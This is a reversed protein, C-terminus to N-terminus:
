PLIGQTPIIQHALTITGSDDYNRALMRKVIGCDTTFEIYGFPSQGTTAAQSFFQLSVQGSSSLIRGAPLFSAGAGGVTIADTGVQGTWASTTIVREGAVTLDITIVTGGSDVVFAPYTATGLIITLVSAGISSVQDLVVKVKVLKAGASLFVFMSQGNIGAFPARRYDYYRQVNNQLADSVGRVADNGTCDELVVNGTKFLYILGSAWSPISSYPLTTTVAMYRVGDWTVSLVIGTGIDNSFSTLPSKAQLNVYMGPVFGWRNINGALAIMNIKLIGTTNITISAGASTGSASLNYTSGPAGVTGSALSNVITGPAVGTGSIPCGVIDFASGSSVSTLTLVTGTISGIIVGGVAFYVNTGDITNLVTGDVVTGLQSAADTTVECGQIKASTSLGFQTGTQLTSFKAGRVISKKGFGTINSTSGGNMIFQNPAASQFTLGSVGQLNNYIISGILKDVEGSTYLTPNDHVFDRGITESFGVGTWDITHVSMRCLTTYKGSVMGPPQNVTFGKYTHKGQWAGLQDQIWVRAAGYGISAGFVYDPYDTRHVDQINEVVTITSGSVSKVTLWEFQQLNPPYGLYQVDLSGLGVVMGAVIGSTVVDGSNIFTFTNSGQVTHHILYGAIQVRTAQPFPTNFWSNAGSITENYVNQLTAGTGDFFLNQIGFLFSAAVDGQYTGGNIFESGNYLYTGPPLFANVIAPNQARAWTGWHIFPISNDTGTGVVPGIGQLGWPDITPTADGVAGWWALSVPGSYQRVWAGSTGTPAATPAVYIGQGPDSTVQASLNTPSWVFTGGVKSPPISVVTIVSGVAPLPLAALASVGVAVNPSSAQTFVTDIAVVVDQVPSTVVVDSSANFVHIDTDSM